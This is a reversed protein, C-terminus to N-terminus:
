DKWSAKRKLINRIIGNTEKSKKLWIKLEDIIIQEVSNYFISADKFKKGTVHLQEEDFSAGSWFM